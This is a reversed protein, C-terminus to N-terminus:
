VLIQVDNYMKYFHNYIPYNWNTDRAGLKTWPKKGLFHVMKITDIDLNCDNLRNHREQNYLM